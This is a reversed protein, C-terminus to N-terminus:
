ITRIITKIRWTSTTVSAQLIANGGSLSVLFSVPTTNGIDNTSTDTYDVNSGDWIAVISGARLGSSGSINYDIHFSNYPTTPVSYVNNTGTSVTVATTTMLSPTSGLSLTNATVGAIFTTPGTVTGGTFIGGGGGLTSANRYKVDGTGGDRVLVYSITDDNVPNTNINLSPVYAFNDQTASISNGGLIVSNNYGNINNTNGGVIVSYNSNGRITNSSGALIGSRLSDFIVNADGGGIINFYTGVNNSEYISNGEGGIIANAALIMSPNTNYIQHGDGGIITNAYTPVQNFGRISNSEGGILTSNYSDSIHLDYGGLIANYAVVKPSNPNNVETIDNSSGGLIVNSEFTQDPNANSMSNSSGGIIANNNFNPAGAPNNLSNGQGGVVASYNVNNVISSNFGNTLNYKTYYITSAAMQNASMIWWDGQYQFLRCGFSKVIKEILDYYNNQQLDRKYIYTQSFPENAASAGRNAMSSGSYSCCQYLSPSNPYGILNLGEALVTYLNQLGNSSATYPYYNNKMFSLADICIIDVQTTGTSFPVTVYDNFTYGRWVVNEGGTSAIRTLEVYYLKDNYTLLDPFNSNDTATSMLFSINLQSSIIGPEPEDSNSNPSLSISVAEYNYISGTYGDQYINVLLKSDDRLAQQLLYRKGYAM